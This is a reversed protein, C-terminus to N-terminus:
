ECGKKSGSQVLSYYKERENESMFKICRYFDDKVAYKRIVNNYAKTFDGSKCDSYLRLIESLISCDGGYIKLADLLYREKEQQEAAIYSFLVYRYPSESLHEFYRGFLKDDASGSSIIRYINYLETHYPYKFLLEEAFSKLKFIDSTKSFLDAAEYFIEINNEKELAALYLGAAENINEQSLSVLYKAYLANIFPHEPFERKLRSIVIHSEKRVYLLSRAALSFLRYDNALIQAKLLHYLNEDDGKRAFFIPIESYAASRVAYNESKLLSKGIDEWEKNMMSPIHFNMAVTAAVVPSAEKVYLNKLAEVAEARYDPKKGRMRFILYSTASHYPAISILCDLYRNAQEKLRLNYFTYALFFYLGAEGRGADAKSAVILAARETDKESVSRYMLMQYIAEADSSGFFQFFRVYNEITNELTDEGEIIYKAFLNQIDFNRLEERSLFNLYFSLESFALDYEKLDILRYIRTYLTSADTRHRVEKM